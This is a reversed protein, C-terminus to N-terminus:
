VWVHDRLDPDTSRKGMGSGYGHEGASTDFQDSDADSSRANSLTTPRRTIDIRDMDGLYLAVFPSVAMVLLTAMFFFFGLDNLGDM